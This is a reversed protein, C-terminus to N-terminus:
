IGDTGAEEDYDYSPHDAPERTDPEIPMIPMKGDYNGASM